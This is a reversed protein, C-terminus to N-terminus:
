GLLARSVARRLSPLLEAEFWPNRRLWVNNRPSPHPLPFMDPAWDRWARVTETVSAAQGRLHYAHAYRGIVLTLRLNRLIGLLGERWAPACETRPPLDGSRGAGPYCFGMPLIAVQRPDHFTELPMGLWQRLREGSPDSFPMGSRHAQAGPAQGAILIRAAPDLQLIPRPEFPLLDACLRCARVKTLLKRNDHM